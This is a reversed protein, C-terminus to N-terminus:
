FVQAIQLFYRQVGPPTKELLNRMHFCIACISILSLPDAKIIGDEKVGSILDGFKKLM